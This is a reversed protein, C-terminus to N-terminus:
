ANNTGRDETHVRPLKQRDPWPRHTWQLSHKFWSNLEEKAERVGYLRRVTEQLEAVQLQLDEVLCIKQLCTQQRDRAWSFPGPM